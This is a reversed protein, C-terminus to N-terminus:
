GARWVWAIARRGQRSCVSPRRRQPRSRKAPSTTNAARWSSPAACKKQDKMIMATPVAKQVKKLAAQQDRQLAALRPFEADEEALYIDRLQKHQAESRQATPIALLEDRLDNGVLLAVQSQPLVSAYLRVDDLMGVFPISNTRSGIRFEVDAVISASLNDKETSLPQKVGNFYIAVGSAKSSGDYTAFVHTWENLKIAAKTQVKLGNGPWQHILHVSM